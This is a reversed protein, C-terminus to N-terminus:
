AVRNLSRLEIHGDRPPLTLPGTVGSFPTPSPRQVRRHGASPACSQGRGGPMDWQTPSEASRTVDSGNLSRPPPGLKTARPRTAPSPKRTRDLLGTRPLGGAGPCPRSPATRASNPEPQPCGHRVEFGRSLWAPLSTPCRRRRRDCRCCRGRTSDAGPCPPHCRTAGVRAKAHFRPSSTAQRARATCPTAAFTLWAANTTLTRSPLQAFASDELDAQGSAREGRGCRPSSKAYMDQASGGVPVPGADVPRVSRRVVPGAWV